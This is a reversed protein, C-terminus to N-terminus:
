SQINFETALVVPIRFALKVTDVRSAKEFVDTDFIESLVKGDHFTAQLIVTKM